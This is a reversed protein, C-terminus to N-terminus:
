PIWCATHILLMGDWVCRVGWCFCGQPLLRMKGSFTPSLPRYIVLSGSTRIDIYQHVEQGGQFQWIVERNPPPVIINGLKGFDLM